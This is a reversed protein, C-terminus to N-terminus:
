FKFLPFARIISKVDLARTMSLLILYLIIGLTIAIITSLINSNTILFFMKYSYFMLIIMFISCIAAKISSKIISFRMNIIRKLTITNLIFIVFASLIYGIFFGNIGYKPNPILFYICYLQILIGLLYNITNIVQKGMGHLIGSLTHQMCLFITSYSMITLYKGVDQQNYILQAIHNGFIVYVFTIPIAVLLTLKIALNSRSRVDNINNIAIQESIDPIINVALASTVTFPLFLLPMAMGTIKGFTQIAESSTYGAIILRQPILISNATQILVSVLKGITIPTAIHLISGAIKISSTSYIKLFYRKPSLKKFNFKFILYILGFLEGLSVGIIGVTAALIPNSPKKYVLYSLVFIIRILQEVIQANAPPKVDKLGYFFGRLINSFTILSIAPITYLFPYYISKNKLIKTVILNINLSVSISIILSLAGGICLAITLVKYIGERNNLSNEKAVLSSVAIPIGATTITILLMLFPFVMQYLGIAEAGILRSLVIKYVFGLSRVLFNVIVLLITGYIFSSKKLTMGEKPLDFAVFVFKYMRIIM